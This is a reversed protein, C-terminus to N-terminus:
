LGEARGINKYTNRHYLNLRKKEPGGTLTARAISTALM